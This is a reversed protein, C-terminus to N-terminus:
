FRLRDFWLLLLTMTLQVMKRHHHKLWDVWWSDWPRKRDEDWKTNNSVHCSRHLEGIKIAGWLSEWAVFGRSTRRDWREQRSLPFDWAWSLGTLAQFFTVLRSGLFEWDSQKIFCFSLSLLIYIYIHSMNMSVGISVGYNKYPFFIFFFSNRSKRGGLIQKEPAETLGSNAAKQFRHIPPRNCIFQVIPDGDTSCDELNKQNTM